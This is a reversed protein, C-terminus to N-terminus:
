LSKVLEIACPDGAGNFLTEGSIKMLKVNVVGSLGEKIVTNM